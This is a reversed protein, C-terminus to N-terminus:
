LITCPNGYVGYGSCIGYRYRHTKIHLKVEIKFYETHGFHQFIEGDLYTAAIKM